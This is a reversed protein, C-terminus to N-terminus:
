QGVEALGRIEDRLRAAEEYNEENIAAALAEKLIDTRHRTRIAAGMRRPFKGEHRTASQVTKILARVEPAFADYCNECGLKGTSTLLALTMGCTDCSKVPVSKDADPVPVGVMPGLFGYGGSSIQEMMSKMIGGLMAQVQPNDLNAMKFACTQCMHMERKQGGPQQQQLHVTAQNKGCKECLM